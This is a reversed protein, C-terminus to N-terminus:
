SLLVAYIDYLDYVVTITLDTHFSLTLLYDGGNWNLYVFFLIVLTFLQCYLYKKMYSPGHHFGLTALRWMPKYSISQNSNMVKNVDRKFMNWNERIM